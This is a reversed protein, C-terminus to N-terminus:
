SNQAILCARPSSQHTYKMKTFLLTLISYAANFILLKRARFGWNRSGCANSRMVCAPQRKLNWIPPLMACASKWIPLPPKWIIASPPRKGTIGTKVRVHDREYVSDLIDAIDRKVSEPTIDHEENYAMQKERRRDTEDMARQMSGTITDAYLIVRGEV